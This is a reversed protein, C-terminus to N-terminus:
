SMVSLENPLLTTHLRVESAKIIFLNALARVFDLLRCINSDFTVDVNDGQEQYMTTKHREVLRENTLERCNNQILLVEHFTLGWEVVVALNRTQGVIGGQSISARQISQELKMDLEVCNFSGVLDQVVCTSITFRRYLDPHEAELAQTESPLVLGILHSRRVGSFMAMFYKCAHSM